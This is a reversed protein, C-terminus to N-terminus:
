AKWFPVHTLPLSQPYEWALTLSRPRDAVGLGPPFLWFTQANWARPFQLNPFSQLSLCVVRLGEPPSFGLPFPFPFSLFPERTAAAATAVEMNRGM